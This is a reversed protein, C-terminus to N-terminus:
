KLRALRGKVTEVDSAKPNLQLYSQLSLAAGAKDGLAEQVGALNFFGASLGPEAQVSAQFSIRAAKLEGTKVQLLGLQYWAAGQKPSLQVARLLSEMARADQGLSALIIGENQYLIGWGPAQEIGKRILQLATHPDGERFRATALNNYAVPNRADRVQAMGEADIEKALAGARRYTEGLYSWAAPHSPRTAGEARFAETALELEKKELAADKKQRAKEAKALALEGLFHHPVPSNPERRSLEQYQQRAEDLSERRLHFAALGLRAEQDEPALALLAQFSEGTGNLDGLGARLQAQLKLAPVKLRKPAQSKAVLTMEDLAVGKRDLLALLRGLDYHAQMDSPEVQVVVQLHGVADDLHSEIESLQAMRRRVMPYDSWFKLAEFFAASADSDEKQVLQNVGYVYYFLPNNPDIRLARRLNEEASLQELPTGVGYLQNMGRGFLTLGYRDRAAQQVLRPEQARTISSGLKQIVRRGLDNLTEWPMEFDGSLQISGLSKGDSVQILNVEIYLQNVRKDVAGTILVDAETKQAAKRWQDLTVPEPLQPQGARLTELVPAEDLVRLGNSGVLRTGLVAPIATRMWNHSAYRSLSDFPVVVVGRSPDARLEESYSLCCLICLWSVFLRYQSPM